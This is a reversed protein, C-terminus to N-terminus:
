SVKYENCILSCAKSCVKIKDIPVNSNLSITSKGLVCDKGLNCNNELSFDKQIITGNTLYIISTFQNGMSATPNGSSILNLQLIKKMELAQQQNQLLINGLELGIGIFAQQIQLGHM